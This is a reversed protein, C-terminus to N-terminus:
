LLVVCYYLAVLSQVEVENRLGAIKREIDLQSSTEMAEEAVHLLQVQYFCLSLSVIAHSVPWYTKRYLSYSHTFTATLLSIAARHFIKTSLWVSLGSTPKWYLRTANKLQSVVLKKWFLQFCFTYCIKHILYRLVDSETAKKYSM